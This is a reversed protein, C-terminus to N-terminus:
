SMGALEMLKAELEELSFPKVISAVLPDGQLLRETAADLFGTALLLPLEPRVVRIHRLAETGNMGPMNLDLIVLDVDLGGLLLDLAAQGSTATVMRHGAGELLRPLTALILEDDDVQLITLRRGRQTAPEVEPARGGAAAAAAPLTVTVQTGQGPASMMAVTGQHAKAIAYVMALGLGTGQGVPKTTFFPEMARAQVEPSMGQGTDEVVLQLTDPATRRTRLILRGGAPMADMANVCLNMLANGLTGREGLVGLPGEGLDVQIEVKQLTTRKLIEVEDRVLDNLDFFASEHLDKRAFNTLGKVLDRGRLTAKQIIDLSPGLNPDEAYTKALLASVAQIAALVNNMDHAVGGALSGLSELKQSHQVQAELRQREADLRKQETLDRVYTVFRDSDALYTSSVEVEILEGNRRRHVTAFMQSGHLMILASREDVRAPDYNDLLDAVGLGLLEERTYGLMRCATENVELLRGERSVLWIGDMATRLMSRYREESARLSQQFANRDLAHRLVRDMIRPTIEDKGLYDQAGARLAMEVLKEDHLGTLVVVADGPAARVVEEVTAMGASDPLTLDLLVVDFRRQALLKLGHDLRASTELHVELRRIETLIEKVLRADGPNDEILLVQIVRTSV